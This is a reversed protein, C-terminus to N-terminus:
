LFALIDFVVVNRCKAWLVCFLDNVNPDVARITNYNNYVYAQLVRDFRVSIVIITNDSDHATGPLEAVYFCPTILM